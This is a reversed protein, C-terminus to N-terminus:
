KNENTEGKKIAIIRKLVKIDYVIIVAGFPLIMALMLDTDGFGGPILASLGYVLWLELWHKKLWEKTKM